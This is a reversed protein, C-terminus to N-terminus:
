LWRRVRKRYEQYAEGFRRTLYAEERAIIYRDIVAVLFPTLIIPWWANLFISVGCYLLLLSLYLPNRTIKFIGTTILSSVSRNPMITTRAMRFAQIAPIIFILSVLAFAAGIINAIQSALLPLPAISELFMGGLFFALYIIPPPVKIGPNDIEQVVGM